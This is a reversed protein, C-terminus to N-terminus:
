SHFSEQKHFEEGDEFSSEKVLQLYFLIINVFM